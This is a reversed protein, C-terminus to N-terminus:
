EMPELGLNQELSSVQMHWERSFERRPHIGLMEFETEVRLEVGEVGFM